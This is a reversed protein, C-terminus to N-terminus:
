FAGSKFAGRTKERLFLSHLGARVFPVTTYIVSNGEGVGRREKGKVRKRGMRRQRGGGEHAVAMIAM